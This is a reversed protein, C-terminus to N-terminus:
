ELLLFFATSSIGLIFCWSYVGQVAPHKFSYWNGCAACCEVRAPNSEDRKHPWTSFPQWLWSSIMVLFFILVYHEKSLMFLLQLEHILAIIYWCHNWTLFQFICSHWFELGVLVYTSQVKWNIWVWRFAIKKYCACKLIYQRLILILYAVFIFKQLIPSESM